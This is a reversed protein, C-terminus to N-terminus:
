AEVAVPEAAKPMKALCDACIFKRLMGGTQLRMREGKKHPFTGDKISRETSCKCCIARWKDRNVNRVMSPDRAADKYPNFTAVTEKGAVLGLLDTM